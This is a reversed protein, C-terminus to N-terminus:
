SNVGRTPGETLQNVVWPMLDDQDASPLFDVQSTVADHLRALYQQRSVEYVGQRELHDTRFQVDYLRVGSAFLHLVSCVLAVKSADRVRHFKSEAAYLGGLLVGYLGGALDQGHWVEYSVLHGQRHLELYARKMESTLWTGENRDACGDLVMEPARNFSVRFRQQRLVRRLSRSVRLSDSDIIARPDPSWWLIPAEDYWPFIGTRYAALLRPPSLDGGGAILGVPEFDRPDPFLPPAGEPIWIPKRGRNHM